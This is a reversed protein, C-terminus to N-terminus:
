LLLAALPALAGAVLAQAGDSESLTGGSAATTRDTSDGPDTSDTTTDDALCDNPMSEGTYTYGDKVSWESASKAPDCYRCESSIDCYSCGTARGGHDTFFPSDAANGSHEGEVCEGDIFCQTVGLSPADSWSTQSKSADCVKCSRGLSEGTVGDAYCLGDIYCSNPEIVTTSADNTCTTVCSPSVKTGSTKLKLVFLHNEADDEPYSLTFGEDFWVSTAGNYICGTLILDGNTDAGMDWARTAGQWGSVGTTSGFAHVLKGKGTTGDYEAHWTWSAATDPLSVTDFTQGSGYGVAHVTGDALPMITNVYPTTVAWVPKGTFTHYKIICNDDTNGQCHVGTNASAAWIADPSDTGVFTSGGCDSADVMKDANVDYAPTVVDDADKCGAYPTGSDLSVPGSQAADRMVMYIYPGTPDLEISGVYENGFDAGEITRVWVLTSADSSMRALFGCDEAACAVGLPTPNAVTPNGTTTFLKGRVFLDGSGDTAKTVRNFHQVDTFVREWVLAGDAAALKAMVGNCTANCQHGVAIVNNSDDYEVGGCFSGVSRRGVGGTAGETSEPWRKAWVPALNSDLNLVFGDRAGQGSHTGGSVTTLVTSGVTLNGAFTGSAAVRTNDSSTHVDWLQDTGHGGFHVIDQPIGTTTDVKAFALEYQDWGGAHSVREPTM